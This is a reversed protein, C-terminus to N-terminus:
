RVMQTIGTQLQTVPQASLARAHEKEEEIKLTNEQQEARFLGAVDEVASTGMTIGTGLISFIPNASMLGAATIGSGIQGGIDALKSDWTKNGWNGSVQDATAKAFTVAAGVGEIGKMMRSGYKTALDGVNLSKNGIGMAKTNAGLVSDVENVSPVYLTSNRTGLSNGGVGSWRGMDTRGTADPIIDGTTLRRMSSNTSLNRDSIDLPVINSTSSRLHANALQDGPQTQYIVSHNGGLEGSLTNRFDTGRDHFVKHIADVDTQRSVRGTLLDPALNRPAGTSSPVLSDLTSATDTSLISGRASAGGVRQFANPQQPPIFTSAESVANTSSLSTRVGQQASGRFADINTTRPVGNPSYNYVENLEGGVNKISAWTDQATRTFPRAVYSSIQKATATAGSQGGGWVQSPNVTLASKFDSGMQKVGVKFNKMDDFVTTQKILGRAVDTKYKQYKDVKSALHGTLMSHKFLEMAKEELEGQNRQERDRGYQSALDNARQRSSDTQNRGYMTHANQQSISQNSGYLNMNINYTINNETIILIIKLFM